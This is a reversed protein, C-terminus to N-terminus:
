WTGYEKPTVKLIPVIPAEDEVTWRPAATQLETIWLEIQDHALLRTWYTGGAGYHVGIFWIKEGLMSEGDQHLTVYIPFETRDFAREVVWRIYVLIDTTKAIPTESKSKILVWSPALCRIETSGDQIAALTYKGILSLQDKTDFWFTYKVGM